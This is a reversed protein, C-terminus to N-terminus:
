YETTPETTQVCCRVRATMVGVGAVSGNRAIMAVDQIDQETNM